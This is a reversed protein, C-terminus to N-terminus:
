HLRGYGAKDLEPKYSLKWAAVLKSFDEPHHLQCPLPDDAFCVAVTLVGADLVSTVASCMMYSTVTSAVVVGFRVGKCGMVSALFFAVIGCLVAVTLCAYTLATACVTDTALASWGRRKFLAHTSRGAQKFSDGYVAVYTFAWRNFYEMIDRLCSLLCDLCCVCLCCVNSGEGATETRSYCTNRVYRLVTELTSVAAVFLAGICVSGFSPGCARNLAGAVVSVEGGFLAFFAFSVSGPPAGGRKNAKAALSGLSGHTTGGLARQARVARLGAVEDARQKAAQKAQDEKKAKFAALKNAMEDRRGAAGTGGPSGAGCPADVREEVSDGDDKEGQDLASYAGKKAGVGGAGAGGGAAAAAAGALNSPAQSFGDSGFWWAAVTGSSTVHVIGALVQGGWYLSLLLLM